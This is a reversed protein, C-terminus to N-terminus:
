FATAIGNGNAGGTVTVDNGINAWQSDIEFGWVWPSGAAQWNWGIQGGGFWGDISASAGLGFATANLDGSAYGFNAGAYFGTWNYAAIVPAAKYVPRAIDAAQTAVSTAVVATAAFLIRALM